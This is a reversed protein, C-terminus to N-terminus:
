EYAVTKGAYTDGSSFATNTMCRFLEEEYNPIENLVWIGNEQHALTQEEGMELKVALIDYSTGANVRMTFARANDAAAADFTGTILTWANGPNSFTTTGGSLTTASSHNWSQLGVYGAGAGRVLASYTLKGIPVEEILCRIFGNSAGGSVRMADAILTVTTSSNVNAWGDINLEGTYSAQGRQNVPCVGRGTGGGWFYWNRLMNRNARRQLGAYVGGSKVPNDSGSTPVNDFTLIDQKGALATYIGSSKVPNSSGSTPSNDFTLTNQKGSLATYVGGSKVPNSSGNTPTNDFTLTNQKESLASYIGGSKVPNDSGSTPVSDFTLTNQKGALATNIDSIDGEIESVDGEIESIEGTNTRIQRIYETLNQDLNDEGLHTLLFELEDKMRTLYDRLERLQNEGNGRPPPPNEGLVRLKAM